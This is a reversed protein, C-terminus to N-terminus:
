NPNAYYSSRLAAPPVLFRERGLLLRARRDNPEERVVRRTPKLVGRGIDGDVAVTPAPSVPMSSGHFVVQRGRCRVVTIVQGYLHPPDHRDLSGALVEVHIDEGHPLEHISCPNFSVRWPLHPIKGLM